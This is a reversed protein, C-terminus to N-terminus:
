FQTTGQVEERAIRISYCSCNKNHGGFVPKCGMDSKHSAALADIADLHSQVSGVGNEALTAHCHARTSAPVDPHTSMTERESDTM